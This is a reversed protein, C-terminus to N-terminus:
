RLARRRVFETGYREALLALLEEPHEKSVHELFERSTQAGMAQGQEFARDALEICTPCELISPTRAMEQLDGLQKEFLKHVKELRLDPDLTRLLELREGLSFLPSYACLDALKGPKEVGKLFAVIDRPLGPVVKVFEDIQGFVAKMLEPSGSRVDEPGEAKSFRVRVYPERSLVGEVKVRWLGKWLPNPGTGQAPLNRGLLVLTGISGAASDVSATPIMVVLSHERYAQAAAAVGKPDQVTMNVEMEPFVVIDGALIAPAEYTDEGATIHEM